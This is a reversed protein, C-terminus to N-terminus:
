HDPCDLPDVSRPALPGRAGTSLLGSEWGAQSVQDHRRQGTGEDEIPYPSSQDIGMLQPNLPIRRRFSASEPRLIWM